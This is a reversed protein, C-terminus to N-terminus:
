AKHKPISLSELYQLKRALCVAFSLRVGTQLVPATFEGIGTNTAM